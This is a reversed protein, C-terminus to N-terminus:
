EAAGPRAELTVAITQEANDRLITLTITQNVATEQVIYTLLDDFDLVPQGDIATIVDGGVRATLGDIQVERDGGRLGAKDAPADAIVESILVGRQNADLDMEAALDRNLTGGLIGLWPNQVRGDAILQPAVRALTRAPVAYGVGLFGQSTTEIATNVGIVEGNLNLLPGGSNGPNIAADTQIIAPINFTRGNPAMSGAPLMRGLGSVIGTTMSNALGFPNGIAVVFQGVRLGNSDGIPLPVLYAPDVDTVQLVALDADPDAGVLTADAETGDHFIVTIEVAGDVVHNNTIIHGAADYVFGSGQSALPLQDEPIIFPLEPHDEPLGETDVFAALDRAVQISVVAPNATEYLAILREEEALLTAGQAAPAAAPAAASAAATEVTVPNTSSTEAGTTPSAEASGCAALGLLLLLLALRISIQKM